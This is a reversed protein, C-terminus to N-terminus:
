RSRAWASPSHGVQMVTHPMDHFSRASRGNASASRIWGVHKYDGCMEVFFLPGMEPHAAPGDACLRSPPTARYYALEAATDASPHRSASQEAVELFQRDWAGDAYDAFLYGAVPIAFLLLAPLVYARIFGASTSPERDSM